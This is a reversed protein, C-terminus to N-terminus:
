VLIKEDLVVASKDSCLNRSTKSLSNAGHIVTGDTNRLSVVLFLSMAIDDILGLGISLHEAYCANSERVFSFGSIKLCVM